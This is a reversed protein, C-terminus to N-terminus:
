HSATTTASNKDVGLAARLVALNREMSALYADRAQAPGLPGGTVTDLHYLPQNLDRSIIEAAPNASDIETLLAVPGNASRVRGVVDALDRPSPNQGPAPEMVALIKLGLDHALYPMSDHFAVVQRVPAAALNEQLRAALATLKAAYAEGNKQYIAAHVPDAAALAAALTRTQTAALAPSVWVHPNTEGDIKLFEIDASANVVKLSACSAAVKDLYGELGGGNIVFVNAEALTQLDGPRLQYDEPCGTATPVLNVVRVGPTDGVVNLAEVYIPYFEAVVTFAAPAPRQVGCAALLTLAAFLLTGTRRM